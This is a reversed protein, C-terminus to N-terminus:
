TQNAKVDQMVGALPGNETEPHDLFEGAVAVFEARARQIRQETSHFAFAQQARVALAEVSFTAADIAGRRRTMFSKAVCSFADLFKETFKELIFSKHM